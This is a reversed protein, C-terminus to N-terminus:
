FSAVSFDVKPDNKFIVFIDIHIKNKFILITIFDKGLLVALETKSLVLVTALFTAILHYVSSHLPPLPPKHFYFGRSIWMLWSACIKWTWCPRLPGNMLRNQHSKSVWSIYLNSNWQSVGLHRWASKNCSPM